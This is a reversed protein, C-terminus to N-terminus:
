KTVHVRWRNDAVRWIYGKEAAELLTYVTFDLSGDMYRDYNHDMLARFSNDDVGIYAKFLNMLLEPYDEGHSQLAMKHIRVYLHFKEIDFDISVLYSDLRSLKHRIRAATLGIDKASQQILVKLFSPGDPTREEGFCYLHSKQRIKQHFKKTLSGTLCTYMHSSNQANRTSKGIYTLANVRVNALTVLGYYHVLHKRVGKPDPITLIDNWNSRYAQHEIDRLFTTLNLLSKGDFKTKLPTSAEQILAQGMKTFGNIIKDGNAHAPSLAFPVKGVSNNNKDAENQNGEIQDTM